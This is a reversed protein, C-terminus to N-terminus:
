HIIISTWKNRSQGVIRNGHGILYKIMLLYEEDTSNAHFNQLFERYFQLSDKFIMISQDDSIILQDCIHPLYGIREILEQQINIGKTM